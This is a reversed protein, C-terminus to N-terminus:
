YGYRRPERLIADATEAAEDPYLEVRELLAVLGGRDRGRAAADFAALLGATFLRENVTM